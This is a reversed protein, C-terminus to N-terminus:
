TGAKVEFHLPDAAHALCRYRDHFREISTSYIQTATRWLTGCSATYGGEFGNLRSLADYLKINYMDKYM